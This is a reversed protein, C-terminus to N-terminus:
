RGHARRRYYAYTVAALLPGWLILPVYCALALVGRWDHVNLPSTGGDAGRPARGFALGALLATWLVTLAASGVAGPVVALGTPVRRGRWFPVWRPFVEGWAAVLGVATFALLESVVSLGLVYLELPVPGPGDWGDMGDAVPLHLVCVAVRWASSPLVVLPVAFAAVRAWRPVGAVPRHAVVWASRVRGRSETVVSM